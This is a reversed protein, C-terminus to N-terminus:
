GVARASMEKLLQGLDSLRPQVLTSIQQYTRNIAETLAKAENKENAALNGVALASLEAFLRDNIESEGRFADWNGSAAHALLSEASCKLDRLRAIYPSAM